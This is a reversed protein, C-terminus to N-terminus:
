LTLGMVGDVGRAARLEEEVTLPKPKRAEAKARINAMREAYKAKRTEERRKFDAKREEATRM